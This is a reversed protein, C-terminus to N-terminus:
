RQLPHPWLYVGSGSSSRATQASLLRGAGIRQASGCRSQVVGLQIPGDYDAYRNTYSALVNHLVGKILKMRM